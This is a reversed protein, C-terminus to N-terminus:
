KHGQAGQLDNLTIVKGRSVWVSMVNFIDMKCSFCYKQVLVLGGNIVVVGGELCDWIDGTQLFFLVKSDFSSRWKHSGGWGGSM